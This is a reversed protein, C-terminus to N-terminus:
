VWDAKYLSSSVSNGLTTDPPFWNGEIEKSIHRSWRETCIKCYREGLVDCHHNELSHRTMEPSKNRIGPNYTRSLLKGFNSSTNNRKRAFNNTQTVDLIQPLRRVDQENWKASMSIKSPKLISNEQGRASDHGFDRIRNTNQIPPLIVTNEQELHNYWNRFKTEYIGKEKLSKKHHFGDSNNGLINNPLGPIKWYAKHLPMINKNQQSFEFMNKYKTSRPTDPAQKTHSLSRLRKETSYAWINDVSGNESRLTTGLQVVPLCVESQLVKHRRLRPVKQMM